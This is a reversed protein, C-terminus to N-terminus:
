FYRALELALMAICTVTGLAPVWVPVTFYASEHPAETMKLKLLAANVSAFILLIIASAAKALVTLELLVAFFLILGGVLATAQLPTQTKAYIKGFVAPAQGGQAMGYLVRAGMIVQVLAGNVTALLSIVGMIEPTIASGNREMILALPTNSEALEDPPVSLIATVIVLLYILMTAVMCLIIAWPITREVDKVEEAVNVMDEFGIFAYFALFAGSMIGGWIAIDAVSPIMETWRMGISGWAEGGSIIVLFLGGVEILTLTVVMIVSESIGWAAVACLTLVVAVTLVMHSGGTMDVLFGATANALASASVIGTFILLWGILLSFSKRNFAARVYHVEGASMPFRRAMEAYSFASILALASSLLFAMPAYMGATGAVKGTLAYIGGGVTTGLGYFVLQWLSISRKLEIPPQPDM